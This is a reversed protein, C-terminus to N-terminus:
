NFLVTYVQHFGPEHTLGVGLEAICSHIRADGGYLHPHRELCSDLVKALVKALPASIAFGAGTLAMEFGFARNQEINESCAGIYYWLNDDYKSLTKVLNDPFFVTDEDGFVYWRVDSHGQAVTELVVRACRIASRLGSPHFYRFRSTDESVCLPLVTNNSSDPPPTDLFVCGKMTSPRWWLEIFEKTNPWSAQTAFIGFVIHNLSLDTAERSSLLGNRFPLLTFISITLYVLFISVSIQFVLLLRSTTHLKPHM